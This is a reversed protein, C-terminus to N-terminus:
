KKEDKKPERVLAKAWGPWEKYPKKPDYYGYPTSAIVRYATDSVHLVYLGPQAIAKHAFHGLTWVTAWVGLDNPLPEPALAEGIDSLSGDSQTILLRIQQKPAYGSGMIVVQTKGDLALVPSPGIVVTPGAAAGAAVWAPLGLLVGLIALIATLALTSSRRQLNEM